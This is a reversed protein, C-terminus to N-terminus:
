GGPAGTERSSAPAPRPGLGLPLRDGVTEGVLTSVGEGLAIVGDLDDRYSLTVSAGDQRIGVESVAREVTENGLRSGVLVQGASLLQRLDEADGGSEAYLTARLGVHTDNFVSYGLGVREVGGLRGAQQGAFEELRAVPVRAAVRVVASERREALATRLGASLGAADGRHVDIADTVVRERTSFVYTNPALVAVYVDPGSGDLRYVPLGRYDRRELEVEGEEVSAVLTSEAFDARLVVGGYGRGVDTGVATRNPYRAFVALWEIRKPQLGIESEVSSLLRDYRASSGSRALTENALRRTTPHTVLDGEVVAVADAEPVTDVPRPGGGDTLLVAAGAVVAVVVVAVAAAARRDVGSFEMGSLRFGGTFRKGGAADATM